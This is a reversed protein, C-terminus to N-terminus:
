FLIKSVSVSLLRKNGLYSSEECRRYRRDVLCGKSVSFKWWENGRGCLELGEM